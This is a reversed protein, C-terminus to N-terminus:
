GRESDPQILTAENGSAAATLLTMDVQQVTTIDEYIPINEINETVYNDATVKIAYVDAKKETNDAEESNTKSITKLQLPSTKGSMDTYATMIKIENENFVEVTANEIPASGKSHTVVVTLRGIADSANIVGNQPLTSRDRFSLLENIYDQETKAM